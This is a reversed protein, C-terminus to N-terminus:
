QGRDLDQEIERFCHFINKIFYETYLNINSAFDDVGNKKHINQEVTVATKRHNKPIWSLEYQLYVFIM